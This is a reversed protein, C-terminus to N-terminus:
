SRCGEFVLDTLGVSLRRNDHSLGLELMSQPNEADIVISVRREKGELSPSTLLWEFHDNALHTESRNHTLSGEFTQAPEKGLRVSVRGKSRRENLFWKGRLRFRCEGKADEPLRIDISSHWGVMWVGWMEIDGWGTGLIDAGRVDGAFSIHAGMPLENPFSLSNTSEGLYWLQQAHSYERLLM